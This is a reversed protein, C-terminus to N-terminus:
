HASDGRLRAYQTRNRLPSFDRGNADYFKGFFEVYQLRLSHIFAGLLNVAISFLHGLVFILIGLVIGVYPVGAVLTALLNIVMGVAASGLGLALLRSYSLVDGLYGTVNYLSLVGSFLKGFINAKERGQTAVLFLAGAIAIYKTFPAIPGTMKGSSSLGFLLLGVLFLIWGGQDAFAATKNGNTFNEKMALLLGFIVQIFGLSLSILLLTMPDNMPDLVQLTDKIPVLANLFPFATISDGFWSGTLSGFVITCFMGVLLLKFYKRLSPSLSHRILL